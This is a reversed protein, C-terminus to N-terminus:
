TVSCLHDRKNIIFFSLFVQVVELRGKFAASHLPNNKKQANVDAGHELLLRSISIRVESEERSVGPWQCQFQSGQYLPTKGQEDEANPNAGHGLFLRVLEPWGKFAAKHLVTSEQSMRLDVSAGHKVLLRALYLVHDKDYCRGEMLVHLPTMGENDQSEVDAKHELLVRALELRGWFAALHLPTRGNTTRINVDAGHELLLRALDLIDDENYNLEDEFSYYEFHNGREKYYKNEFLLHFPTKGVYNEVSADAGHELLIRACKYKWREMALHLPTNGDDDRINMVVGHELSLRAPGGICVRQLLHIPIKGENNRSGVDAKHGLLVQAVELQEWYAALHLPTRLNNQQYNIDAGHDLLFRVINVDGIAKHLPAREEKGRIDINAGHELLIEAVGVHDRVLAAFLPFEHLGGVANVHQPHKVTLHEVLDSFGCLSSYYLPTPIGSPSKRYPEKDINYIGVWAMFYPKDCDFLSEMGDKVQSAVDEFQAHTVWHEAAYKALPFDKISEEDAPNNLHLLFGLCAQALITHAPGPIIRYRSFDGLSSTLRDSVLFEKVSFHSFQVVHSGHNDVIAILSSCTSLVAEVAAEQDNPRWDARYRPVSGDAADFEFALLEALEEARLPRVAVMLCQLLRHALTQNVEPIQGLVRAYTEDLTKPLRGLTQRICSPHCYRLV